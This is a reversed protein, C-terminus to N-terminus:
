AAIFEKIVATAKKAQAPTLEWAEGKEHKFADSNRLIRRARKPDIKLSAAIDNVTVVTTTAM